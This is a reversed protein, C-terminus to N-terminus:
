DKIIRAVLEHALAAYDVAGNSKKDFTFIDVGKEQAKAVAINSRIHTKFVVEGFEDILEQLLRRNMEKRVDYRSLVIGILELRRNLRQKIVNMSRIFSRLGKLPLFEAQLPMLVFDSAVLANVTLIGISPPCDIIIYDYGIPGETNLANPSDRDKINQSPLLGLLHTLLHERGYVSVLEMEAAALELTAPILDIGIGTHIIAAQVDITGGEGAKRLLQYMSWDPEHLVGLASTLNAQPDADVLLVRQGFQKLAAALNIATTTKGSGGKQIAIAIIPM